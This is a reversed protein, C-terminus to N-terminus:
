LIAMRFIDQLRRLRWIRCSESRDCEATKIPGFQLTGRIKVDYLEDRRKALAADLLVPFGEAITYDIWDGSKVIAVAEEPSRRKLQYEKVFNM